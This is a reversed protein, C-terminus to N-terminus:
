CQPLEPKYLTDLTLKASGVTMCSAPRPPPSVTAISVRVLMITTALARTKDCMRKLQKVPGMLFMTSHCCVVVVVVTLIATLFCRCRHEQTHPRRVQMAFVRKWTYLVCYFSNNWDQPHLACVCGAFCFNETSSLM